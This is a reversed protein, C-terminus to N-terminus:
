HTTKKSLFAMKVWKHGTEHNELTKGIRRKGAVPSNFRGGRFPFSKEFIVLVKERKVKFHGKLNEFSLPLPVKKLSVGDKKERSRSTVKFM